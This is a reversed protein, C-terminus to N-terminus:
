NSLSYYMYARYTEQKQYGSGLWDCLVFAESQLSAKM